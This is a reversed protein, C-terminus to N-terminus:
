RKKIVKKCWRWEGKVAEGPLSFVAVIHLSTYSYERSSNPRLPPLKPVALGRLPRKRGAGTSYACEGSYNWIKKKDLIATNLSNRGGFTSILVLITILLSLILPFISKLTCIFVNWTSFVKRWCCVTWFYVKFVVWFYSLHFDKDGLLYICLKGDVSLTVDNAANIHFMFKHFAPSWDM